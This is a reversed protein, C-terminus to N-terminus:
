MIRNISVMSEIYRYPYEVSAKKIGSNQRKAYEKRLLKVSKRYSNMFDIYHQLTVRNSIEFQFVTKSNVTTYFYQEVRNKDIKEEKLFQDVSIATKEVDDYRDQYFYPPLPMKDKRNLFMEETLYLNKRFAIERGYATDLTMYYVRNINFYAMNWEVEQLKYYPMDKSVYLSVTQYFDRHHGKGLINFMMGQISSKQRYFRYELTDGSKIIKVNDRGRYSFYSDDYLEGNKNNVIPLEIFPNGEEQQIGIANYTSRNVQSIGWILAALILGHVLLIKLNYRKWFRRLGKVSELFLAVFLFPVVNFLASIIGFDIHNFLNIMFIVFTIKFGWFYYSGIVFSQNNRIQALRRKFKKNETYFHSLFAIGVANGIIAANGAFFLSLKRISDQSIVYNVNYSDYGFTTNVYRFLGFLYQQWFYLLLFSILALVVALILRWRQHSEISFPKFDIFRSM